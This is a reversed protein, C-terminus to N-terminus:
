RSRKRLLLTVHIIILGLPMLISVLFLLLDIEPLMTNSFVLLEGQAFLLLENLLIGLMLLNIGLKSLVKKPILKLLLIIFMSMFGLTFLHLYGIVFYSKYQLAIKVLSPFAGLFQLIIKLIYSSFVFFAIWKIHKEKISQFLEKLMLMLFKLSILQLLVAIFGIAYIYNPMTKWYLSLVYAPILASNTFWYFYIVNKKKFQINYKEFYAILLGFLTFVFFGNYLFHLYFYVTHYYVDIKGYKSTIFAVTWIALSSLFYYAIGTRIFKASIREISKLERYMNVLYVYSTILFVSLFVISFVKYGQLPFSILMGMLAFTMINFLRKIFISQTAKKPYFVLGILSIVALFGWGLFTVHSHAQLINKYAIPIADSIHYFRLILGYLAAVIFFSRATKIRSAIVKKISVDM